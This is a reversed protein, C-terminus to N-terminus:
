EDDCPPPEECWYLRGVSGCQVEEPPCPQTIDEFCMQGRYLHLLPGTSGESPRIEQVEFVACDDTRTVENWRDAEDLQVGDPFYHFSSADVPRWLHEGITHVGGNDVKQRELTFDPHVVLRRADKVEPLDDGPPAWSFWGLMWPM